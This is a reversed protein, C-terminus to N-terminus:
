KEIFTHKVKAMGKVTEPWGMLFSSLQTHRSRRQLKAATNSVPIENYNRVQSTESSSIPIKRLTRMGVPFYLVSVSFNFFLKEIHVGVPM